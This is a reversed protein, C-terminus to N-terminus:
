LSNTVAEGAAKAADYRKKEKQAREKMEAPITKNLNIKWINDVLDLYINAKGATVEATTGHRTEQLNSQHNALAGIIVGTFLEGTFKDYQNLDVFLAKLEAPDVLTNKEEASRESPTKGLLGHLALLRLATEAPTMPPKENCATMLVAFIGIITSVAFTKLNFYTM